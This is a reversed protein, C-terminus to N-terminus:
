KKEYYEHIIQKIINKTEENKVISVDAIEHTKQRIRIFTVNPNQTLINNQRIIDNDRLRDPNHYYHPEEDWEIILNSTPNYYDISYGCIEQEGNSLAYNGNWNLTKNLYDFFACATRNFSPFKGSEKLQLLRNERMKLKHAPKNVAILHNIKQEPTYKKNRLLELMKPTKMRESSSKSIKEISEPKHKKGYMFAKEGAKSLRQKEKYEPTNMSDVWVKSKKHGTGLNRRWEDTFPPRKRGTLLKSKSKQACEWCERKMNRNAYYSGRTKYIRLKNCTPCNDTYIKNATM